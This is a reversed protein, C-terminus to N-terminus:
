KKNNPDIPNSAIVETNNTMFGQDPWLKALIRGRLMSMPVPGFNRSDSSNGFNDGQLWVHGKPVKVYKRPTKTPDVCIIDGPMGILRKCLSQYPNTPSVCAVVDGPKLRQTHLSWKEILVVDGVM